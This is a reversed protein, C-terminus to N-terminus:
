RRGRLFRVTKEQFFEEQSPFHRLLLLFFHLRWAEPRLLLTQLFLLFIQLSSAGRFGDPAFSDHLPIPLPRRFILHLLSSLSLFLFSIEQFYFILTFSSSSSYFFFFFLFYFFYLFFIFLLFFFFSPACFVSFLLLIPVFSACNRHPYQFESSKSTPTATGTTTSASGGFSQM